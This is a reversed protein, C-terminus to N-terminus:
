WGSLIPGHVLEGGFYGAAAVLIAALLIMIQTVPQRKGHRADRTAALATVIAWVATATGSWRHCSMVFPSSAGSGALAYCWGLIATPVASIAGAVVCFQVAPSPPANAKRAAAVEVLAAAVLFALPFHLVLLHFRGAWSLYRRVEDSLGSNARDALSREADAPLPPAGALIWSRVADKEEPNMKKGGKPMEDRRIIQWLESKDPNGPVVLEPNAAVRKLDLVYGFHGRAAEPGHCNACQAQFIDVVRHAIEAPAEPASIAVGSLCFFLAISIVSSRCM